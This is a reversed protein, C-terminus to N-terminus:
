LALRELYGTLELYGRGKVEGEIRVAGEWYVPGGGLRADLEQDDFLPRVVFSRGQVTIRREVPYEAGTRPSRWTRITTFDIEAPAFVSLRGAADRWSGGAWIAKGAADRLQFATLAGGDELNAGIWDWGVAAPDLVQNSWEHDLWAEGTVQVDKGLEGVQGTVRLHPQSFYFSADAPLPGKRSLGNLGQLLVPQTPTLSLDLAFQDSVIRATLTGDHERLLSWDDLKVDTNGQAAEVLGFGQRAVRQDHILRGLKPDSLAAHAFIVQRPTFRSPNDQVIAPRSRFFTVQFGLEGNDPTHLWGTVYWWELRYAPHSGHDAPFRLIEQATLSAPAILLLLLSLWRM